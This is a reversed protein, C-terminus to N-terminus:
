HLAVSVTHSVEDALTLLYDYCLVTTIAVVYYQDYDRVGLRLFSSSKHEGKNRYQLDLLGFTLFTWERASYFSTLECIM